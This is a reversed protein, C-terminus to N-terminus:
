EQAKTATEQPQENMLEDFLALLDEQYNNM